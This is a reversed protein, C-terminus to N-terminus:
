SGRNLLIAFRSDLFQFLCIMIPVAVSAVLIEGHHLCEAMRTM